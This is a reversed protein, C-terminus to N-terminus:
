VQSHCAAGSEEKWEGTEKEYGLQECAALVKERTERSVGSKGSIARSVSYKSLGTKEAIDDLTVKHKKESM